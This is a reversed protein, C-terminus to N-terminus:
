GRSRHVTNGPPEVTSVWPLSTELLVEIGYLTAMLRLFMLRSPLMGYREMDDIKGVIETKMCERLTVVPSDTEHDYKMEDFVFDHSSRNGLSAHVPGSRAASLEMDGVELVGYLDESRILDVAIGKSCRLIGPAPIGGSSLIHRDDSVVRPKLGPWDMLDYKGGRGLGVFLGYHDARSFRRDSDLIVGGRWADVTWNAVFQEMRDDALHRWWGPVIRAERPSGEDTWKVVLPVELMPARARVVAELRSLEKVKEPALKISVITGRNGTTPKEVLEGRRGVGRLRLLYAGSPGETEVRIHDGLMFVSLFGIGFRGIPSFGKEIARGYDRFFEASHWYDSAIGILHKTIVSRSMGVGNDRVSLWVQQEQTSLGVEILGPACPVGDAENMKQRLAVADRANQLLERVPALADNGYLAKGGLLDVLRDMSEPQIRIDIPVIQGGLQVIEAFHAASDVGRVGRLSLRGKSSPREDVYDRVARIEADLGRAIDYILWWADVDNIPATSGYVLWEDSRSPGVIYGQANWHIISESSVESRLVRDLYSAREHNVHAYDILRLACAMFALDLQGFADTPVVRKGLKAHLEAITWHHSAAVEGIYTAWSRRVETNDILYTGIGPLPNTVLDVACKAHLDRM